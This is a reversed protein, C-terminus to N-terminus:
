GAADPSGPQVTSRIVLARAVAAGDGTARAVDVAEDALPEWDGSGGAWDLVHVLGSVVVGRAPTPPHAPVLDVARRAAVLAADTRGGDLLYRAYRAELVGLRVPDVDPDAQLWSRVREIIEVADVDHDCIAAISAAKTFVDVADAGVLAEADPVSPWLRRVRNYQRHAEDYAYVEEAAQAARFSWLWRRGRTARGTPTSPWSAPGRTRSRSCRALLRGHLARREGPLLDAYLAEALLAHRLSLSGDAEVVLLQDRM